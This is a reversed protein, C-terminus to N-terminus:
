PASFNKEIAAKFPLNDNKLFLDNGFGAINKLKPLNLTKKCTHM